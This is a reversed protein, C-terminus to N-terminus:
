AWVRLRQVFDWGPVAFFWHIVNTEANDDYTVESQPRHCTSIPSVPLSNQPFHLRRHPPPPNIKTAQTWIQDSIQWYNKIIMNLLTMATFNHTFIIWFVVTFDVKIPLLKTYNLTIICPDLYKNPWLNLVQKTKFSAGCIGWLYIKYKPSLVM